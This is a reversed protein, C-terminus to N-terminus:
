ISEERVLQLWGGKTNKRSKRLILITNCFLICVQQSSIRNLVEYQILSLGKIASNYDLSVGPSGDVTYLNGKILTM